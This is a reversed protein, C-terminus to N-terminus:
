GMGLGCVRGVCSDPEGVRGLPEQQNKGFTDTQYASRFLALWGATMGSRLLPDRHKEQGVGCPVSSRAHRWLRRKVNTNPIRYITERIHIGYEFVGLLVERERGGGEVHQEREGASVKVAVADHELDRAVGAALVLDAGAREVVVEFLEEGCAEDFIQRGVIVVCAAAAGIAESAVAASDEGGFGVPEGSDEAVGAARQTRM